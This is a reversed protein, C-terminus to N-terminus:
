KAVSSTKKLELLIHFDTRSQLYKDALEEFNLGESDAILKLLQRNQESLFNHIMEILKVNCLPM